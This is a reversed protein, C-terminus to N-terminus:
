DKQLNLARRQKVVNGGVFTHLVRQGLPQYANLADANHSRTNTHTHTQM